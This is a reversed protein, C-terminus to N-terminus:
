KAAGEEVIAASRQGTWYVGTPAVRSTAEAPGEGERPAPAREAYYTHWWCAAQWIAEPCTSRTALGPTLEMGLAAFVAEVFVAAPIGQGGLLPNAQLGAGWAFGLWPLILAGLELMGRERQVRDVAEAIQGSAIPFRIVAVNPFDKANEYRALSVAKIGNSKPMGQFGKPPDLAVENLRLARGKQVVVGVHSWFSPMLDDRVHGQALRLRFHLLDTGGVLVLTGDVRGGKGAIKRVWEEISPKRPPPVQKLDPNRQGASSHRSPIM